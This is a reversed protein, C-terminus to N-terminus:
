QDDDEETLMEILLAVAEVIDVVPVESERRAKHDEFRVRITRGLGKLRDLRDCWQPSNRNM